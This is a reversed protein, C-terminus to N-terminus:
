FSLQLTVGWHEGREGCEQRAALMVLSQLLWKNFIKTERVANVASKNFSQGSEGGNSGRARAGKGFHACIKFPAPALPLSTSSCPLCSQYTIRHMPLAVLILKWFIFNKM